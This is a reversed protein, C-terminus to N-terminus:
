SQWTAETEPADSRRVFRDHNCRRLSALSTPAPAPAPFRMMFFNLQSAYGFVKTPVRSQRRVLVDRTLPVLTANWGPWFRNAKRHTHALFTERDSYGHDDFVWKQASVFVHNGVFGLNPKQWYVHFSPADYQELFAYALIHCAGCAFIDSGASGMANSPQEQSIRANHNSVHGVIIQRMHTRWCTNTLTESLPMPEDITALLLKLQIDSNPSEEVLCTPIIEDPNIPM